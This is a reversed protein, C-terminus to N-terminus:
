RTTAGTSAGTPSTASWGTPARARAPGQIPERTQERATPTTTPPTTPETTPPDTPTPVETDTCTGLDVWVGWEGTTGPTEGLTWWKAKWTHGSYSLVDGNTYVTTASWDPSSCTAEARPLATPITSAQASTMGAAPIAALLALAATLAAARISRM